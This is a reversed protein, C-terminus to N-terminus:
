PKAVGQFEEYSANRLWWARYDVPAGSCGSNTCIGVIGTWVSKLREYTKNGVEVAINQYAVIRFLGSRAGCDIVLYPGDIIGDFNLWIKNGVMGCSELAVGDKVGSLDYGKNAAVKEMVGAAYFAIGGYSYEPYGMDRTRINIVGPLCDGRYYYGDYPDENDCNVTWTVGSIEQAMDANNSTNIEYHDSRSTFESKVWGVVNAFRVKVWGDVEDIIPATDGSVMVELIREDESPGSRIRLGPVTVRAHEQKPLEPIIVQPPDPPVSEIVPASPKDTEITSASSDIYAFLGLVVLTAFSLALVVSKRPM